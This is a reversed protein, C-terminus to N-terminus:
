AGPQNTLDDTCTLDREWRLSSYKVDRVTLVRSVLEADGNTDVTLVTVKAGADGAPITPQDMPLVILYTHGTTPQGAADSDAPQNSLAQVRCPGTYLVTKDGPVSGDTPNWTGATHVAVECTATMAGETVPAHHEAFRPHVVKTSPFPSM